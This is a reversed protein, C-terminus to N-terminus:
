AALPSVGQDSRSEHIRQCEHDLHLVSEAGDLGSVVKISRSAAL